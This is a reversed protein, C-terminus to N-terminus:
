VRAPPWAPCAPASIRAHTCRPSTSTFRRQLRLFRQYHAPSAFPQARMIRADLREHREHSAAKLRQCRSLGTPSLTKDM